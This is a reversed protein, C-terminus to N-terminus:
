QAAVCADFDKVTTTTLLCHALKTNASNNDQELKQILQNTRQANEQYCDGTATTCDQIRGFLVRNGIALAILLVLTLFLIGMTIYFRKTATAVREDTMALEKRLAIAEYNLADVRAVFKSLDPETM